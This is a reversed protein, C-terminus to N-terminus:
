VRHRERWGRQTDEHAVNLPYWLAVSMAMQHVRNEFARIKKLETRLQKLPVAAKNSSSLALNKSTVIHPTNKINLWLGHAYKNRIKALERSDTILDLIFENMRGRLKTKELLSKLMEMQPNRTHMSDWIPQARWPPARLLHVFISLFQAEVLGFATVIQGILRAHTPHGSLDYFPKELVEVAIAKLQAM